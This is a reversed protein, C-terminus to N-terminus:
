DRPAKESPGPLPRAEIGGQAKEDFPRQTQYSSGRKVSLDLAAFGVLGLQISMNRSNISPDTPMELHLSATQQSPM